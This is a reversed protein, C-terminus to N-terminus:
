QGPRGADAAPLPRDGRDDRAPAALRCIGRVAPEALEPPAAATYSPRRGKRADGLLTFQSVVLVGGGVSAVDLNMRGDADDFIRLGSIKEALARAQKPGDGTAVGLLVLLGAGIQGCIQGDVAVSAESVRQICARM